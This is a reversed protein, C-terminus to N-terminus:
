LFGYNALTLLETTRGYILLYANINICIDIVNNIAYLKGNVHSVFPYLNYDGLSFSWGYNAIISLDCLFILKQKGHLFLTNLQSTVFLM